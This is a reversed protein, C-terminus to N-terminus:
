GRSLLRPCYDPLARVADNRSPSSSAPEILWTVPADQAVAKEAARVRRARARRVMGRVALFMLWLCIAMWTLGIILREGSDSFQSALWPLAAVAIIGVAIDPAPNRRKPARVVPEGTAMAQWRGAWEKYARVQAVSNITCSVMCLAVFVLGWPLEGIYVGGMLGASAVLLACAGWPKGAVRALPGPQNMAQVHPNIGQLREAEERHEFGGTPDDAYRFVIVISFNANEKPL